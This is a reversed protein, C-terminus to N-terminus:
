RFGKRLGQPVRPQGTQRVGVRQVLHDLRLPVGALQGLYRLQRGPRTLQRIQHSRQLLRDVLGPRRAALRAVRLRM